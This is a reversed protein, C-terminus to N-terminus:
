KNEKTSGSFIDMTILQWDSREEGTLTANLARACVGWWMSQAEPAAYLLSDKIDALEHLLRTETEPIVATLKDIVDFLHRM